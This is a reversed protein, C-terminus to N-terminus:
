SAIWRRLSTVKGCVGVGNCANDIFEGGDLLTRLLSGGSLCSYTKGTNVVEIDPM